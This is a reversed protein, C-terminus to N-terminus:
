IYELPKIGNELLKQQGSTLLLERMTKAGCNFLMDIFSLLPIFSKKNNCQSYVAHRTEYDHWVIKIQLEDFADIQIYQKTGSGSYYINCQLQHCIKALRESRNQQKINLQSSFVFQCHSQMLSKILHLFEINLDILRIYQKNFFEELIPFYETFYSAKAYNLKLMNIIKKPNFERAIEVDNINQGFKHKIPITLWLPGQHTLIKNRNQYGGYTFQVDDYMVFYDCVLMSEIIGLWPLFPPQHICAISHNRM